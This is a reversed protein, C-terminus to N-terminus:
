NALITRGLMREVKRSEDTKRLISTGEDEVGLSTGTFLVKVAVMVCIRMVATGATMASTTAVVCLYQDRM